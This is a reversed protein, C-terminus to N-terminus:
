IIKMSEGFSFYEVLSSFVSFNWKKTTAILSRVTCFNKAWKESRFCWAVKLKVKAMRVDREALNNDFPVSFDKLFCLTWEKYKEFRDLLNKWKEQRYRWRSKKREPPPYCVFWKELIKDYKIYYSNIIDKKLETDWKKKSDKVEKNMEKLLDYMNTARVKWEEDHDILRQCERLLHACCFVHTAKEYKLYPKWHDHMLINEYKPLINIEDMAEIWRKKHSFLLAIFSNSVVHIRWKKWWINWWSEDAHLVHEELLKEKQCEVRTTLYWSLKNEFTKLTWESIKLNYVEEFFNSIRECSVMWENMLFIALARINPWYQTKANVYFPIDEENIITAWNPIDEVDFSYQICKIKPLVIDIVQKEVWQKNWKKTKVYIIKDPDQKNLTYWAHWKQWWVKKWTKEKLSKPDPKCYIDQSSPKSSNSSNTNLKAELDKITENQKKMIKFMKKILITADELSSVSKINEEVEKIENIM